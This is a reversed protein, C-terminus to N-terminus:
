NAQTGTSKPAPFIIASLILGCIYVIAFSGIVDSLFHRGQLIRIFGTLFGITLGPLLAGLKYRQRLFPIFWPLMLFFASGTHGSPFSELDDENKSHEYNRTLVPTFHLHNNEHYRIIKEPRPRQFYPKLVINVMFAPGICFLLAALLMEKKYKNKKFWLIPCLLCIVGALLVPFWKGIEGIINLAVSVKFHTANFVQDSLLLDGNLLRIAVLLTIFSFVTIPIKYKQM